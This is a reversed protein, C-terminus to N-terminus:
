SARRTRWRGKPVRSRLADFLQPSADCVNDVEILGYWKFVGGSPPCPACLVAAALKANVGARSEDDLVSSAHLTGRAISDADTQWHAQLMELQGSAAPARASIGRLYAWFPEFAKSADSGYCSWPWDVSARAAPPAHPLRAPPTMAITAAATRDQSANVVLGGGYSANAELGGGYCRISADYNENVFGFIALMAGGPPLRGMAKVSGYTANFLQRGDTCIPVGM